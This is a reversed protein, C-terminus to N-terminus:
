FRIGFTLPIVKTNFHSFYAYHWRAETYVKAHSEGLRYTLGAGLNWGFADQSGSNIVANASVLGNTCVIGWFPYSPFCTTGLAVTPHTLEWSRHYWGIGLIGYFGAKHAESSHLMANGTVSYLRASGDPAGTLAVISSKPPLDHWMFEADFGAGHHTNVGGGVVFNGGVNAFNGTSGQPFGPGGGIVFNYRPAEEQASAGTGLAFALVLFILFYKKIM